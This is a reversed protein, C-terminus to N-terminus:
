RLVRIRHAESDAVYLVGNAFMVGHPRNLKCAQPSTEPGDGLEGTGLVTSIVGTKLDIRRIAHSETDALYLADPAYALGKPGALRALAGGFKANLAPGGDGAYGTEGTGAIRHLTQTKADIRFIANGERLALYLDGNPAVVLTRPGNLPTGSIPATDPTAKADGTGAYTEIIGTELHLRRIRQNGVDCILLSGDRDRIVSHPQRFQAKTALGGDGGYGATGTGAATSIVGTKMDIKRIVHNDREAIFLDGKSDFVLEHPAALSAEVAPGGDGRYGKQGNGAITTVRKTALDLRRIRQNDLDCFYLAGDPGIAMGYPNNVQNDAYGAAGSGILTTVSLAMANAALVVSLLLMKM